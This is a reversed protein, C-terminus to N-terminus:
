KRGEGVGEEAYYVVKEVLIPQGELQAGSEGGRENQQQQAHPAGGMERPDMSQATAGSHQNGTSRNREGGSPMGGGAMSTDQRPQQQQQRGMYPMNAGAGMESNVGMGGGQSPGGMHPAGGAVGGGTPAVQAGGSLPEQQQPMATGSLPQSGGMGRPGSTNGTSSYAGAQGVGMSTPGGTAGATSTQSQRLKQAANQLHQAEEQLHQQAKAYEAEAKSEYKAAAEPSGAGRERMAKEAFEEAKEADSKQVFAPLNQGGDRIIGRLLPDTEVKKCTIANGWMNQHMSSGGNPHLVKACKRPKKNDYPECTWVLSRDSHGNCIPFKANSLQM